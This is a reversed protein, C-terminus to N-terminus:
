VLWVILVVVVAVLVILPILRKLIPWAAVRLLNVEAPAAAVPRNPSTVTPKTAPPL